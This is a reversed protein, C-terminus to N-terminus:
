PRDYDTIAQQMLTAIQDPKQDIVSAYDREEIKGDTADMWSTVIERRAVTLRAEIVEANRGPHHNAHDAVRLVRDLGPRSFYASRTQASGSVMKFGAAEVIKCAFAFAEKHDTVLDGDTTPYTKPTM